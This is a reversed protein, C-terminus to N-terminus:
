KCELDDFIWLQAIPVNYIKFIHLSHKKTQFPTVFANNLRAALFKETYANSSDHLEQNRMKYM